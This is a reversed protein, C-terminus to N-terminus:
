RKARLNGPRMAKGGEEGRGKIRLHWREEGEKFDGTRHRARCFLCLYCLQLHLIYHWGLLLELREVVNIYSSLM